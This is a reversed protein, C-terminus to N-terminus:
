CLPRPAAYDLLETALHRRGRHLWCKITGEPRDMQQAIERISLGSLYFLLLVRAEDWPLQRLARLLDLRLLSSDTAAPSGAALTVSPWPSSVVAGDAVEEVGFPLLLAASRRRQQRAENRVIAQMWAGAREPQRLEGVHRCIQLLASAVADQADDYHRLEAFAVAMLRPRERQVLEALAGLDGDRARLALEEDNTRADM